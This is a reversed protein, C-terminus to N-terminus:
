HRRCQYHRRWIHMEELARRIDYVAEALYVKVHESDGGASLREEISAIVDEALSRLVAIEENAFERPSCDPVAALLQAFAEVERHFARRRTSRRVAGSIAVAREVLEPAANIDMAM